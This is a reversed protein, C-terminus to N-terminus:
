GLRPLFSPGAESRADVYVWARAGSALDVAVRKVAPVEYTDARQIEEATVAFAKGHVVDSSRGTFRAMTHVPQGSIAVVKADEIKLPLLEFGHLADACGTLLRGFTAMQVPELQLTGYSFLRETRTDATTM